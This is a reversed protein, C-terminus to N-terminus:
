LKMIFCLAVYPPVTAVTVSHIHDGDESIGHTHAVGGGTSSSVGNDPPSTTEFQNITDSSGGGGFGGNGRALYSGPSPAGTSYPAETTSIVNHTHPALEDVTLAHGSTAGTHAHGGATNTTGTSTASGGTLLPNVSGGAGYIFKDRLDPTGNTGDCLHWATPINSVVGSWMIIGGSPTGGTTTSSLDALTAYNALDTTLEAQTVFSAVQEQTVFSGFKDPGFPAGDVKTIMGSTIATATNPITVLWLQTYGPSAAPPGATGTPAPAGPTAQLSVTQKRTTNQGAGNNGQGSFPQSPDAANYYEPATADTDFEQFAAEIAWVTSQGSGSPATLTLTTSTSKIGIKQIADTQASIAGFNTDDIARYSTISGPAVSVSMSVPNTPVCNLGGVVTSQGFVSQLVAGDNVM